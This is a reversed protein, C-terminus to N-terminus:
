AEAGCTQEPLLIDGGCCFRAKLTGPVRGSRTMAMPPVMSIQHRIEENRLRGAVAGCASPSCDPAKDTTDNAFRSAYVIAFVPVTFHNL